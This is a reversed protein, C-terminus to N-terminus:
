ASVEKKIQLRKTACKFNFNLLSMLNLPIALGSFHEFVIVELTNTAQSCKRLLFIMNELGFVVGVAYKEGECSGDDNDCLLL